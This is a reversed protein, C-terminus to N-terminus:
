KKDNDFYFRMEMEVGDSKHDAQYNEMIDWRYYDWWVCVDWKWFICEHLDWDWHELLALLRDDENDMKDLREYITLSNDDDDVWSFDVSHYDALSDIASQTTFWQWDSRYQHLQNDWIKFMCKKM